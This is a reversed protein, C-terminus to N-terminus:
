DEGKKDASEGATGFNRRLYGCIQELTAEDGFGGSKTVLLVMGGRRDVAASLVTGTAMTRLPVLPGAFRLRIVDRATDGGVIVLACNEECQTLHNVVSAFEEGVRRRAAHLETKEKISRRDCEETQLATLGSEELYRQAKASALRGCGQKMSVLPVGQRAIYAMQKRSIPNLSGSAVLIKKVKPLPEGVAKGGGMKAALYQAFGACGGLLLPRGSPLHSCVNRIDAGSVADVAFIRRQPRVVQPLHAGPGLVIVEADSQQAIIEAVASRTVPEFPDQGFVSQAIEVGDLYQVGGVTTRGSEPYAPLFFLSGGGAADLLAQLESGINGRLASDTKKYIQSIGAALAQETLMRMRRYAESPCLHRTQVNVSVVRVEEDVATFDPQSDEPYVLSPIGLNAFQAATDLAGTFDDALILLEIM